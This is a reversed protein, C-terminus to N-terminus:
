LTWSRPESCPRHIRRGGPIQVVTLAEAIRLVICTVYTSIDSLLQQSLSRANVTM